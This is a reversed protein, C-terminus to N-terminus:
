FNCWPWHNRDTFVPMLGSKKMKRKDVEQLEQEEKVRSIEVFLQLNGDLIYHNAVEEDIRVCRGSRFLNEMDETISRVLAVQSIKEIQNEACFKVKYKFKSAQACTAFMQVICYYKGDRFCKYYLFIENYKLLISTSSKKEPSMFKAETSVHDEHQSELHTILERFHGRWQCDYEPIKNLPCNHSGCSCVAQHEKILQGTFMEKCGEYKCPYNLKLCLDELAYNRAQLIEQRCNPCSQLNPRCENCINHGNNCLYIPPTMYELCVPCELNKLLSQELEEPTLADSGSSDAICFIDNLNLLFIRVQVPNFKFQLEELCM